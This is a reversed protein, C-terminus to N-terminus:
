KVTKTAGDCGCPFASRDAPESRLDSVRLEVDREGGGGGAGLQVGLVHGAMQACVTGEDSSRRAMKEAEIGLAQLRRGLRWAKRRSGHAGTVGATM